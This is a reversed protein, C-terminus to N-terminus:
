DSPLTGLIKPVGVLALATQGHAVLNPM